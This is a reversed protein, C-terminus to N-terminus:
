LGKCNLAPAYGHAQAEEASAFWIKTAESLRAAGGCWPFYYKTGNKSAVVQGGAPLTSPAPAPATSAEEVSASLSAPLLPIREASFSDQQGAERGVLVGLGFSSLSALVLISVALVDKPMRGLTNGVRVRISDVFLKCALRIDAIKMAVLM